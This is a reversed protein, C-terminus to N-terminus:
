KKSEEVELRITRLKETARKHENELIRIEDELIKISRTQVKANERRNAKREAEIMRHIVIEANELDAHNYVSDAHRLRRTQSLIRTLEIKRNETFVFM